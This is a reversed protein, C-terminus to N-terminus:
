AMEEGQHHIIGCQNKSSPNACEDVRLSEFSEPNSMKQFTQFVMQMNLVNLVKDKNFMKFRRHLNARVLCGLCLFYLNHHKKYKKYIRSKM